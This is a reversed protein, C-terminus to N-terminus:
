TRLKMQGLLDPLPVKRLQAELILSHMARSRLFQCTEELEQANAAIFYGTNPKGCLATGDKRLESVLHRVHREACDLQGALGKATIGRTQGIHSSLVSLLDNPTKM